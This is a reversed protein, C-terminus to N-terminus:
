FEQIMNLGYIFNLLNYKLIEHSLLIFSLVVLFEIIYIDRNCLKIKNIGGFLIVGIIPCRDGFFVIDFCAM